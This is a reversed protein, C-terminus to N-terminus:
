VFTEFLDKILENTMLYRCMVSGRQYKNNRKHVKIEFLLHCSAGTQQDFYVVASLFVNKALLMVFTLCM